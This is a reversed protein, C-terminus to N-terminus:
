AKRDDAPVNTLPPLLIQQPLTSILRDSTFTERGNGIEWGDATKRVSTVPFNTRIHDRVPAAVSRVLAEIGGDIPYSFVSQHTYGETEIGIASKIIDEVPPRPVRGDM